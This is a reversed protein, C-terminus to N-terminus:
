SLSPSTARGTSLRHRLGLLALLVGLILLTSPEPNALAAVNAVGIDVVFLLDNYDKDGGGYLDEFGILLYPSGEQAFSVVHVLGDRNASSETSWVYSGGNAGDAILFFDLATGATFTGLDVFDGSQLPASAIRAESTITNYYSTPSSADPFILAADNPDLSSGNTSFGLTNHYGAGEGVFYVRVDSENALYLKSPDLAISSLNSVSRTESLNANILQQLEPLANVQFDASAADSGALQVTDIIDLGLPRAGAQIPSEEQAQTAPMLVLGGLISIVLRPNM